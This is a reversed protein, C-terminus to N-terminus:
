ISDLYGQLITIAAMEDIVKKRKERSMKMSILVNNASVSTLREDWMIVKLNFEKELREKFDYSRQSSLSFDGNMHKPNGM